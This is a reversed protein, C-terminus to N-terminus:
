RVSRREETDSLLKGVKSASIYGREWEEKEEPAVDFQATPLTQFEPATVLCNYSKWIFSNLGRIHEKVKTIKGNQNRDHGRVYHIIKKTQGNVTKVTKDRDAFYKKTLSKDVSFTVRDGGKKVAVSWREQRNIWWNFCARFSNKM